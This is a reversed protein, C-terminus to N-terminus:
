KHIQYNLLAFGYSRVLWNNVVPAILSHMPTSIIAKITKNLPIRIKELERVEKLNTKLTVSQMLCRALQM